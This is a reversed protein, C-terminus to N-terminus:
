NYNFLAFKLIMLADVLDANFQENPYLQVHKKNIFDQSNRTYMINFNIRYGLPSIKINVLNYNNNFKNIFESTFGTKGQTILSGMLYNRLDMFKDQTSLSRIGLINLIIILSEDTFNNCIYNRCNSKDYIEKFHELTSCLLEVRSLTIDISGFSIFMLYELKSHNM